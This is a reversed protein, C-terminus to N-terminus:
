RSMMNIATDHMIFMTGGILIVVSGAAFLFAMLNWGQESRSNLHLFFVLHVVIQVIALVALAGLTAGPPLLHMMVAAFSAVTLIVALVFGIFYASYSGHSEGAASTHGQSM